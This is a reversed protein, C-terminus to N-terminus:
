AAPGISGVVRLAIQAYRNGLEDASLKGGRRYWSAVSTCMGLIARVAEEENAPAFTGSRVGERIIARLLAEERDRLAVVARRADPSLSRLETNGVFAESQRATHYRVHARVAAELRTAPDDAARVADEVQAVIDQMARRMIHFLIDQKSDFHYYLAAVTFDAAKAIDRVSTGHYGHKRFVRIAGAVLLEAGPASGDVESV